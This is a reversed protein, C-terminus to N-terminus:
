ADTTTDGSPAVGKNRLRELTKQARRAYESVPWTDIAANFEVTALSQSESRLYAVGLNFHAACEYKVGLAAQNKPDLIEKFLDIAETLRDEQVLLTAQNVQIILKSTPDPWVHHAFDYIRKAQTYRSRRAFYNALDVLLRVRLTIFYILALFIVPHIPIGVFVVLLVAIATIILSEIAFRTSLGERRMLAMGGFIVIYLLGILGIMLYLSM